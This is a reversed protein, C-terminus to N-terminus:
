ILGKDRLPQLDEDTQALQKFANNLEIARNIYNLAVTLNAQQAAYCGLNFKITAEKPHLKEAELLVDQAAPIGETRRMGYALSIWWGPNAPQQETMHGAVVVLRKWDESGQYLELYAAMVEPRERESPAIQALEQEAEAYMQLGIYGKAYSLNWNM